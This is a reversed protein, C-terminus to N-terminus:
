LKPDLIAIATALDNVSRSLVEAQYPTTPRDGALANRLHRLTDVTLVQGPVTVDVFELVSKPLDLYRPHTRIDLCNM